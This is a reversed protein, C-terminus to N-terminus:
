SGVGLRQRAVPAFPVSFEPNLALADRILTIAAQASRLSLGAFLIATDVAHFMAESGRSEHNKRLFVAGLVVVNEAAKALRKLGVSRELVSAVADPDLLTGLAPLADDRPVRM